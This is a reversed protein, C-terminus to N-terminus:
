ALRVRQWEGGSLQNAQRTLKDDLGLAAAVENLLGVQNKDPLHLTLYHWVPMAFPPVQQQVLYSRRSALTAPLWDVLSQGLFTIKGEGTTLGAMCALLTSKGAGNPGVLHLIEGANVEATVPELRGKGAVDTLQMLLTM